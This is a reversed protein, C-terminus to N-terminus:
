WQHSAFSHVAVELCHTVIYHNYLPPVGRVAHMAAKEMAHWAHDSHCPQGASINDARLLDISEHSMHCM